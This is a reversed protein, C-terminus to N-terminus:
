TKSGWQGINIINQVRYPWIILYPICIIIIERSAMKAYCWNTLLTLAPAADDAVARVVTSWGPLGYSNCCSTSEVSMKAKRSFERVLHRSNYGKLEFLNKVLIKNEKTSSMNVFLRHPQFNTMKAKMIECGIKSTIAFPCSLNFLSIIARVGCSGFIILIPQHIHFIYCALDTNNETHLMVSSVLTEPTWTEGPLASVIAIPPPIVFWWKIAYESLLM